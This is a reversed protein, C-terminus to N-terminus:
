VEVKEQIKQALKALDENSYQDGNDPMVVKFDDGDRSYRPIIHIHSHFVSQYAVEGNNNLINVGKMDPLAAQLAQVVIPIRRFIAGSDKIDYDYIDQLHKKPVILTHGETVQSTDLFATVVEDEYVINTPIEGNALKCFICDTM